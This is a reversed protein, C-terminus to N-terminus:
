FTKEFEIIAQELLHSISTLQNNLTTRQTTKQKAVSELKENACALGIFGFNANTGALRHAIKIVEDFSGSKIILGLQKVSNKNDNILEKFLEDFKAQGLVELHRKIKPYDLSEILPEVVSETYSSDIVEIFKNPIARGQYMAKKLISPEIPKSIVGNMGCKQYEVIEFPLVSATVAFVILENRNLKLEKRIKYCCNIGDLEPMHIDLMVIQFTKQQLLAIADLCNECEEVHHHDLQLFERLITRNTKSDDVILIDQSDLQYRQDDIDYKKENSNISLVDIDFYFLAGKDLESEVHIQGGLQEVMNKVLSLGLGVGSLRPEIQEDGQSFIEFIKQQRDESIGIGHDKVSFRLKICESHDTGRENEGVGLV